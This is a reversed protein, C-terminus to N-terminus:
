ALRRACELMEVFVPYDNIRDATLDYPVQREILLHLFRMIRGRDPRYELLEPMMGPNDKCELLVGNGAFIGGGIACAPKYFTLAELLVTSNIGIVAKANAIWDYSRGESRFSINQRKLVAPCQAKIREVVAMDRKHPRIILKAEPFAECIRNIFWVQRNPYKADCGSWFLLQTDKEM